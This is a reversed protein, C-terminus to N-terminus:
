SPRSRRDKRVEEWCPVGGRACVLIPTPRVWTGGPTGTRSQHGGDEDRSKRSAAWTLVISASWVRDSLHRMQCELAPLPIKVEISLERAEQDKDKCQIKGLYM